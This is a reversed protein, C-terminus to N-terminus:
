AGRLGATSTADARRARRLAVAAAVGVAVLGACRWGCPIGRVRRSVLETAGYATLAYALVELITIGPDHTKGDTWSMIEEPEHNCSSAGM